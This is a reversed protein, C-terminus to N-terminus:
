ALEGGLRDCRPIMAPSSVRLRSKTGKVEGAATNLEGAWRGCFLPMDVTSFAVLVRQGVLKFCREFGGVKV